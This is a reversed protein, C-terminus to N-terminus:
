QKLDFMYKISFRDELPNYEIPAKLIAIIEEPYDAHSIYFLKKLTGRIEIPVARQNNIYEQSISNLKDKLNLFLDKDLSGSEELLSIAKRYDEMLNDHNFM